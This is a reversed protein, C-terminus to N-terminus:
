GEDELGDGGLGIEWGGEDSNRWGGRGSGVKGGVRWLGARGGPRGLQERGSGVASGTM